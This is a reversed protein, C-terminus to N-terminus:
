LACVHAKRAVNGSKRIKKPPRIRRDRAAPSETGRAQTTATIRTRRCGGAKEQAWRRWCHGSEKTEVRKCWACRNM